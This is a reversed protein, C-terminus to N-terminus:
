KLPNAPDDPGDWDVFITDDSPRHAEEEVKSHTEDTAALTTTYTEESVVSGDVKMDPKM